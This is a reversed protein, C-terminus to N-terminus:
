LAVSIIDVLQEDVKISPQPTTSYAAVVREKQTNPLLKLLPAAKANGFANVINDFVKEVTKQKESFSQAKLNVFISLVLILFLGPKM